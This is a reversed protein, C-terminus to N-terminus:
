LAVHTAAHRWRHPRAAHGPDIGHCAPHIGTDALARPRRRDGRGNRRRGPMQGARGGTDEQARSASQELNEPLITGADPAAFQLPRGGVGLIAQLGARRACGLTGQARQAVPRLLARAPGSLRLRSLHQRQARRRRRDRAPAPRVPSRHQLDAPGNRGSEFLICAVSFDPTDAPDIPVTTKDPVLCNSFATISKAPGFMAALWSLYYGAHEFTCGAEYKTCTRGPRARQPQALNGAEDSLDSQRRVRCLRPAVRRGRRRALRALLDALHKSMANCPAGSLRLGRTHALDLLARAEAMDTTFPKEPISM